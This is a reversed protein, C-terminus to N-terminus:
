TVTLADEASVEYIGEASKVDAIGNGVSICPTDGSHTCGVTGCTGLRDDNSGFCRRDIEIIVALRSGLSCAVATDGHCTCVLLVKRRM